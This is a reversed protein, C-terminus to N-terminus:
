DKRDEDHSGAKLSFTLSKNREPEVIGVPMGKHEETWKEIEEPVPLYSTKTTYLNVPIQDIFSEDIKYRAGYARYYVKIRDAQISSFNPNLKLATQEIKSKASDIAQEVQKQIRLLEVLVEEGEASIFIKDSDLVLNELKEIDIQM